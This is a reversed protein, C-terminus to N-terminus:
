KFGVFDIQSTEGAEEIVAEFQRIRKPTTKVMEIRRKAKTIEEKMTEISFAIRAGGRAQNEFTPNLEIMRRWAVEVESFCRCLNEVTHVLTGAEAGSIIERALRGFCEEAFSKASSYIAMQEVSQPDREPYDSDGYLYDKSVGYCKAARHILKHNIGTKSSISEMKSLASTNSYGMKESATERTMKAINTRAYLLRARVIDPNLDDKKCRKPKRM